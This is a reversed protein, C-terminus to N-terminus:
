PRGVPYLRNIGWFTDLKLPSFAAAFSKSPVKSGELPLIHGILDLELSIAPALAQVIGLCTLSRGQAKRIYFLNALLFAGDAAFPRFLM